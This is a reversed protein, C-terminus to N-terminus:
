AAERRTLFPLVQELQSGGILEFPIEERELGLLVEDYLEREKFRMPRMVPVVEKVGTATSSDVFQRRAPNFQPARQFSASFRRRVNGLLARAWPWTLTRYIQIAWTPTVVGGLRAKYYSYNGDFNISRYHGAIGRRVAMLTLLHGPGLAEHDEDFAMELAYLGGAFAGSVMGAIPLHDLLVLDFGLALPQESSCLAHFMEIRRPHRRIGAHAKEKWSRRELDLYLGLLRHRARPDTCSMAEVKGAQWLRRGYRSIARRQTAPLKRFYDNLSGPLPVTTNPMNQYRRTYFRWPSLRPLENLGSDPDQMGLEIFSWRKERHFLFEFFAQCCRAEDAARAVVHPRDTDHSILMDIEGFPLGLLRQRRKRLPLFGVLRERDFAGLLLLADSDRSYEDHAVFAQLYEFTSFPCPRRSVENLADLEPRLATAAAISRFAKVELGNPKELGDPKAM